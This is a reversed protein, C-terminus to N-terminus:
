LKSISKLVEASYKHGEILTMMAPKLFMKNLRTLMLGGGFICILALAVMAVQM